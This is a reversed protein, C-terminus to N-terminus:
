AVVAKDPDSSDDVTRLGAGLRVLAPALGYREVMRARVQSDLPSSTYLWYSEPDVDLRLVVQEQSRHLYMEQKPELERITKLQADTLQLTEAARQPFDPNALFIKTPVMELLARASTSSSVDTVSQTAMVLAANRRRWTKAAEMLAQLVVPDQLYMWAEDVVMLKVRNVEADDDIVLRLREFLFFLAATCWDPHERAGVLDIVQWNDASLDLDSPPGDFTRAWPGDGVWQALAPKMVGPLVRHLNSLTRDERPRRYIDEIRDRIDDRDAATVEYSGLQALRAIFSVLFQVSRQTHPLSFPQLAPVDTGGGEPQMQIYSGGLFRTIWRYSGGLDLIIVRPDYQLAQMLLFNLTFSKGSGTAGFVITHGVDRGGFLDFGYPSNARTQFFTLPPKDLHKCHRFGTPPGFIPALTAAQGSTVIVPRAFANPVQGPWRQFWVTSQGYRERVAKGDLHQVVRQIEAGIDDLEKRSDVAIAVSLALHGFGVGETDLEVTARALQEVVNTAGADEIAMTTGETQQVASWLSWRQNNFHKQVARIKSSAEYREIGRWEVIISLDANLEYLEGLANAASAFPPLALSFLGVLRDGVTMHAPEFAVWESAVRWHLGYPVPRRLPEFVGQGQNVVYHLLEGIENFTLPTVPTHDAVLAVLSQYNTRCNAVAEDIQERLYTALRPQSTRQQLWHRLYRLVWGKQERDVSERLGPDFALVLVTELGRASHCVYALRKRQALAPLTDLDDFDEPVAMKPRHFVLYARHPPEVAGLMRQWAQTVRDLDEASRADTSAHSLRAFFLLQGGLTLVVDRAVFGWYPVRDVLPAGVPKFADLM